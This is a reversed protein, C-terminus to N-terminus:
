AAMAYGYKSILGSDTLIEVGRRVSEPGLARLPLRPKGAPLGIAEMLSKIAIPSRVSYLFTILPLMNFYLERFNAVDDPGNWPTSLAAMEAPALNGAANCTGQAGLAMSTALIDPDPCDDGLFSIAPRARLIQAIQGTRPTGEKHLVYNPHRFIRLLQEPQLDTLLRAPNNFTGLQLSTEDAVALFFAEAQDLDPGVNPPVTIMAGDAGAVEAVKVKRITDKTNIGTCGYFFPMGPPRLKITQEIVQKHEQDTLVSSEGAVGLFFLASTGHERHFRILERFGGFDISDDANFPTVIAVM